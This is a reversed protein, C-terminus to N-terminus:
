MVTRGLLVKLPQSVTMWGILVMGIVVHLGHLGTMVYYLGFFLVEGSSRSLLEDGGPYIGHEFKASVVRFVQQGFIGVAL